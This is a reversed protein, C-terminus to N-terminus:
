RPEPRIHRGICERVAHGSCPERTTYVIDILHFSAALHPAEPGAKCRSQSDQPPYEPASGVCTPPETDCERVDALDEVNDVANWEQRLLMVPEMAEM